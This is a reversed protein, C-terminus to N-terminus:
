PRLLLFMIQPEDLFQHPTKKPLIMNKIQYNSCLNTKVSLYRRGQEGDLIRSRLLTMCLCKRLCRIRRMRDYKTLLVFSPSAHVVYRSDITGLTLISNNDRRKM